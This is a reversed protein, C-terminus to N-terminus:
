PGPDCLCALAGSGRAQPASAAAWPSTLADEAYSTGCWQSLNLIYIATLLLELLVPSVRSM